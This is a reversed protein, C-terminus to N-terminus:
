GEGVQGAGTVAIVAQPGAEGCDPGNPFVGEPTVTLEREVLVEGAQGTLRLAVEVPSKPLGAVEVFGKKDGTPESEATCTEGDCTQRAVGSGWHLELRATRCSGGWCARRCGARSRRM